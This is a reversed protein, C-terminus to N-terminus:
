GSFMIQFRQQSFYPNLLSALFMQTLLESINRAAVVNQILTRPHLQGQSDTQKYFTLYSHFIVVADCIDHKAFLSLNKFGRDYVTVSVCVPFLFRRSKVDQNSLSRLYNILCGFQLNLLSNIWKDNMKNCAAADFSQKFLINYKTM